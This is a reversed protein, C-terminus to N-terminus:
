STRFSFCIKWFFLTTVPLVGSKTIPGNQLRWEIQRLMPKQCLLKSHFHHKWDYHNWGFFPVGTERFRNENELFNTEFNFYQFHKFSEWITVYFCASRQFPPSNQFDRSGNKLLVKSWETPKFIFVRLFLM